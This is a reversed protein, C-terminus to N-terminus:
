LLVGTTLGYMINWMQETLATKTFHFRATDKPAYGLQICVDLKHNYWDEMDSLTPFPGAGYVAFYPGIWPRGDNGGVPGLPFNSVPTSQLEQILQAVQKAINQQADQRLTPWLKELVM